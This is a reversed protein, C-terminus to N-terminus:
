DAAFRFEGADPDDPSRITCEGRLLRGLLRIRWALADASMIECTGSEIRRVEGRDKSVRGEYTLYAKRHDAIRRAPIARGQSAVPDVLLQWTTLADPQEIMLDWHEGDHQRHHLIVFRTPSM